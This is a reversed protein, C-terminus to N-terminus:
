IALTDPGVRGWGGVGQRILPTSTGSKFLKVRVGCASDDKVKRGEQIQSGTAQLASPGTRASDCGDRSLLPQVCTRHAIHCVIHM